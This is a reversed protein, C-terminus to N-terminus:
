HMIVNSYDGTANGDGVHSDQTSGGNMRGAAAANDYFSQSAQSDAPNSQTAQSDTNQSSDSVGNSSNNTQGANSSSNNANNSTSPQKVETKTESLLSSKIFAMDGNYSIQSWDDSVGVVVVETNIPYTGLLEGSKSPLSRINCATNTYRVYSEFSSDTEVVPIETSDTSTDGDGGEVPVLDEEVETEDVYNFDLYKGEVVGVVGDSTEIQYSDLKEKDYYVDAIVTVIDDKSLSAVTENNFDKRPESYASTDEKVMVKYPVICKEYVLGYGEKVLETDEVSETTEMVAETAVPTDDIESQHGCGVGALMLMTMSVILLIYQKRKM